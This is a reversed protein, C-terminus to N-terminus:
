SGEELLKKSAIKVADIIKKYGTCRCLHGDIARKIEDDSPSRNSDLLAKAALVMGPTCYGCQVAGADIFAQQVPHLGNASLGEITTIQAGDAEVALMLCSNVPKGNVLVTCSGCEGTNCGQKTGTLGAKERILSLLTDSSDVEYEADSGNINVMISHKSM